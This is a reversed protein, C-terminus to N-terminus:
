ASAVDIKQGKKVTIIAKRSGQQIGKTKGVRIDKSHINVMNVQMVDVGYMDQIAKKVAAKSAGPFVKFIYAGEQALRSAKETMVPNRLVGFSIKGKKKVSVHQKPTEEKERKKFLNFAM